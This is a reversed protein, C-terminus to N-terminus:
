RVPRRVCATCAYAMEDLGDYRYGYVSEADSANWARLAHMHLAGSSLKVQVRELGCFFCLAVSWELEHERYFFAM